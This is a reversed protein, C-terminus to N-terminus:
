RRHEREERYVFEVFNSAYSCPSGDWHTGSPDVGDVRQRGEEDEIVVWAAVPNYSKEDGDRYHAYYGAAPVIHVIKDGSRM